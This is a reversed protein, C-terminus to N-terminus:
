PPPNLPLPRAAAPVIAPSDPLIELRVKLVLRGDPTSPAKFRLIRHGDTPADFTAPGTASALEVKSGSPPAIMTVALRRGRNSLDAGLGTEHLTISASTVLSWGVETNAPLGALDDTIDLGGGSTHPQFRRLAQAADPAFLSLLDVTVGLNSPEASFDRLTARGDVRHLGSDLTLTNHAFNTYRFIKWRDGNQRSDFLKVGEAELQTYSQLGLDDAWRVGALEFIFSGGDMHGHSDRPSGGKVALYFDGRPRHPSRFVALPVRGQGIWASWSDPLSAEPRRWYLLPFIYEFGFKAPKTFPLFHIGQGAILDTDNLRHAFWFLLPDPTRGNEADGFGFFEGSPTTLQTQVRASAFFAALNEYPAESGLASKLAALSLVTFSTGFRWYGPGEPYIGEPGYASLGNTYRSALLELFRGALDPEDEVIALAALTMGGLCVQNWNMKANHWWNHRQKPDLAPRLGKEVLATRLTLLTDAPLNDHLWDYGLALAASMTAVDLFHDPNWNEFAAAALLNREAAELLDREGTLHFAASLWVTDDLVRRSVNLLRKGRFVREPPAAEACARASAIVQEVLIRYDPDDMAQKHITSWSGPSILLRPHPRLDGLLASPPSANAFNQVPLLAAFVFLFIGVCLRGLLLRHGAPRLLSLHGDQDPWRPLRRQTPVRSSLRRNVFINTRLYLVERGSEPITNM